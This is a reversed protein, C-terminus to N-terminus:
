RRKGRCESTRSPLPQDKKTQPLCETSGVRHRLGRPTWLGVASVDPLVPVGVVEAVAWRGSWVSSHITGRHLVPTNDWSRSSQSMTIRGAFANAEMTDSRAVVVVYKKQQLARRAIVIACATHWTSEVILPVM